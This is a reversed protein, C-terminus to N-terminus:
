ICQFYDAVYKQSEVDWSGSRVVDGNEIFIFYNCCEAVLEPDHTIIFQTKGMNALTQISAAVEKMHRYDLGSTPEDFVVIEKHTAIAGAIAVRQRQGGSLSMPHEEKYDLLDLNKLIEEAMMKCKEPPENMGLLVEEEVSEAFLQHNVDQMVMYCLHIRERATYAKGNYILRGTGNKLLGCLCRAFTTKGAGNNGLVAVVAGKPVEFDDMNLILEGNIAHCFGKFQIKHCECNASMNKPIFLKAARLGIHNLEEPSKMWFEEASWVGAIKGKDFYLIRDVLGKLWALRHEAIVITKGQAKWTLLIKKLDQMTGIDLNSSPEDLAFLEPMLADVSACAIKQKEGGSLGFLSKDLLNSLKLDTVAKEMRALIDPKDYGLNECGFAIESTTNVTFFQSKPNQFISGIKTAIHYLEMSLIDKGDLTVMGTLGGEYYHPILGNLLRLLTTKGCGSEGCVLIVEGDQIKLDINQVSCDTPKTEYAFSVHNLEVM